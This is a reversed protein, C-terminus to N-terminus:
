NAYNTLFGEVKESFPINTVSNVVARCQDRDRVLQHWDVSYSKRLDM